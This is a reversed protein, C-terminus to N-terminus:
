MEWPSSAVQRTLKDHGCCSLLLGITCSKVLSRVAEVRILTSGLVRMGCSVARWTIRAFGRLARSIDRSLKRLTSLCRSSIVHFAGTLHCIAAACNVPLLLTQFRFFFTTLFSYFILLLRIVRHKAYTTNYESNVKFYTTSAYPILVLSYM